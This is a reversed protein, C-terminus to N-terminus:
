EIKVPLMGGPNVFDPHGEILTPFIQNSRCLRKFSRYTSYLRIEVMKSKKKYNANPVNGQINPFNQTGRERIFPLIQIGGLM